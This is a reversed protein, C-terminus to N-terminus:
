RSAHLQGLMALCASECKRCSDACAALKADDSSRRKCDTACRDCAVACASWSVDALPGQRESIRLAAECLQACDLCTRKLAQNAPDPTEALDAYREACELCTQRCAGCTTQFDAPELASSEHDAADPQWSRMNYEAAVAAVCLCVGLGLKGLLRLGFM